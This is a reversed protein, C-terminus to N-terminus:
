KKDYTCRLINREFTQFDRVPVQGYLSMHWMQVSEYKHTNQFIHHVNYQILIYIGTVVTDVQWAKIKAEGLKM